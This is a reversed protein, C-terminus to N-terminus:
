CVDRQERELQRVVETSAGVVGTELRNAEATCAIWLLACLGLSLLNPVSLGLFGMVTGFVAMGGQVWYFGKLPRITASLRATRRPGGHYEVVMRLLVEGLAGRRIKLDWNQWESNWGVAHGGASLQKTLRDLFSHKELETSGPFTWGVTRRLPHCRQWWRSACLNSDGNTATTRWPTLGGKVRGWDRALPELFHLWAIMARSRLRHIWSPPATPITLSRLNAQAACALCYWATYAIGAAFPLLAWPTFLGLCAFLGLAVHWEMSRPLFSLTGGGKPDYLSQFGASGWLGHYILPQGFLRFFPYPGYIRGTWITHGWPNFKNPHKKELFTEAFGYGVQQRWYNRASPRRHHWVVASPNFGIQCGKELLRWCIDVDDGAKTFIPDFGGIEELAQKWFAMNCGPIHEAAQDNLMVQTPGGPSRYVCNAVWNDEPPLLNPGGVGVVNSELFTAALYSLWDHDARADSDIFAVIEGTAAQIGENRAASVGRNPTTIARFPYRQIIADSGDTSGDNVVIVEYHPYRLHLLSALCDDLTPAANYTAVVVSIKPWRWDPSFPVGGMFRRRVVEFSPKPRRDADVLGFGWEDILCGDQFFPDTWGFVVAGALGHNFIEEMQWELFTAQGDRGHRLSCMGFETLVLPREGALHQLRSLYACFAPRQHLYVNFTAVDVFPLELYETTPFNTYSVLCDPDQDKAVHCLDQLFREVKKRGHWRVISPPLEKAVCYMALAPHRRCSALGQQVQQRIERRTGAHDLFCEHSMWPVNVIVRLSHEAAQDLLSLPPVTYTLITNIGAQRMLAFDSEVQSPEPFQDGASNPPFAGYATGCIFLKEEGVYLFKGQVRPRQLTHPLPQEIPLSDYKMYLNMRAM